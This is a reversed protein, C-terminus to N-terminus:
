TCLIGWSHCLHSLLIKSIFIVIRIGIYTTTLLGTCYGVAKWIMGWTVPYRKLFTEWYGWWHLLDLGETTTTWGRTVTITKTPITSFSPPQPANEFDHVTDNGKIPKIFKDTECAQILTNIRGKRNVLQRDSLNKLSKWWRDDNFIKHTSCYRMLDDDSAMGESADFNRQPFAEKDNYPFDGEHIAHVIRAEEKLRAM